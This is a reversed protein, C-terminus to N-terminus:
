GQYEYKPFHYGDGLSSQVPLFWLKPDKGFVQYFNELKGLDYPNHVINKPVNNTSVSMMKLSFNVPSDYEQKKSELNTKKKKLEKRKQEINTSLPSDNIEKELENVENELKEIEKRKRERRLKYRYKRIKRQQDFAELTTMNGLLNQIIHSIFLISISTGLVFSFFLHFIWVKQKTPLYVIDEIINVTIHSNSILTIIITIFQFLTFFTGYFLFLMFYKYNYFGVCNSLWPCHHDMKLICRKCVSCHHTREPKFGFCKKCVLNNVDEFDDCYSLPRENYSENDDDLSDEKNLRKINRELIEDNDIDISIQDRKINRNIVGNEINPNKNIVYNDFNIIHDKQKESLLGTNCDVQENLTENSTITPLHKDSSSAVNDLPIDYKCNNEKNNYVITSNSKSLNNENKLLVGTSDDTSKSEHTKKYEPLDELTTYFSTLENESLVNVVDKTPTGPDTFSVM